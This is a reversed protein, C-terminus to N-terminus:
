GTVDEASDDATDRCHPDAVLPSRAVLVVGAAMLLLGAAGAAIAAPGSRVPQGLLLIALLIGCTPEALTLAPLSASLPALEFASQSLVLGALAVALLAWPPWSTLVAVLGSSLTQLVRQTLVDQLGFLVGAATALLTAEGVPGRRRALGVLLLTAAVVGSGSILWAWAAIRQTQVGDPPAAGAFFLALGTVLLAAGLWEGRGLRRHSWLAGLPLAFLVNTALLPEVVVVSGVGLATAGLLQGVVMAGIGGLWIPRRALVLLLRPTLLEGAARSAEHQQLVYGGALMIAAALGLLLVM